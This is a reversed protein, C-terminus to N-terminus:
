KKFQLMKYHHYSSFDTLIVLFLQNALVVLHKHSYDCPQEIYVHVIYTVIYLKFFKQLDLNTM